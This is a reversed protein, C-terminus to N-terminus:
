LSDHCVETSIAQLRQDVWDEEGEGENIGSKGQVNVKEIM